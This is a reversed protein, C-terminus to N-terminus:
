SSAPDTADADWAFTSYRKAVRSATSGCIPKIIAAEAIM